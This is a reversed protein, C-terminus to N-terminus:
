DANGGALDRVTNVHQFLPSIKKENSDTQKHHHQSIEQGTYQHLRKGPDGLGNLIQRVPIQILLYRHRIVCLRLKDGVGKILHQASHLNQIFGPLLKYGIHGM